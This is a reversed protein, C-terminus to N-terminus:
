ECSVGISYLFQLDELTWEIGQLSDYKVMAHPNSLPPIGVRKCDEEHQNLEYYGADESV